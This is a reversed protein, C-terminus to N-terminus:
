IDAVATTPRQAGRPLRLISVAINKVGWGLCAEKEEKKKAASGSIAGSTGWDRLVAGLPRVPETAIYIHTETEM